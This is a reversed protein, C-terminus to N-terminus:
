QYYCHHSTGTISPLASIAQKASPRTLRSVIKHIEEGSTPVFSILSEKFCAKERMVLNSSYAVDLEARIKQLKENFHQVCKSCGDEISEFEPYIAEKEIGLSWILRFM